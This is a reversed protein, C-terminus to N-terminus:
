DRIEKGDRSVFTDPRTAGEAFQNAWTGKFYVANVLMALFDSDEIISDIKGNTHEEVWKNVTDVANANTVDAATGQYFQEVKKQYGSAFSRGQMRDKNRWVSNAVQLKLEDQANYTEM